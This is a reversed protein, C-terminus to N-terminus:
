QFILHATLFKLQDIIVVNLSTMYQSAIWGAFVKTVFSNEKSRVDWPFSFHFPNEAVM